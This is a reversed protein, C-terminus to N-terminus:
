MEIIKMPIFYQLINEKDLYKKHKNCCHIEMEKNELMFYYITSCRPSCIKKGKNIGIQSIYDCYM